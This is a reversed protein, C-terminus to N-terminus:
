RKQRKKWLYSKTVSMIIILGIWFYSFGLAGLFFAASSVAASGLIPIVYSPWGMDEPGAMTALSSKASDGGDMDLLLRTDARFLM